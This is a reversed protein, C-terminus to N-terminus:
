KEFAEKSQGFKIKLKRNFKILRKEINEIVNQPVKKQDLVIFDDDFLTAPEQYASLETPAGM